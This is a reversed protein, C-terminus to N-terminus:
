GISRGGVGRIVNSVLGVAPDQIHRMIEQLYNKGVMVNSDSILIYPHRAKRCSPILNNIKPNYGANCREVVITINKAPYKDQIKKAVKYAPDNRNQLSFLIEYVPYDLTCFSSLNDFLKDDLGSLPKLISVPPLSSAECAPAIWGPTQKHKIFSCAAGVQLLYLVLGIISIATCCIFFVTM